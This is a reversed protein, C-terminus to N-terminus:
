KISVSLNRCVTVGLASEGFIDQLSELSVAPVSQMDLVSVVVKLSNLLSNGLGLLDGVLGRDDLEGGGNTKARLELSSSAHV